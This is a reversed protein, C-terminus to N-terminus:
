RMCYMWVATEGGEVEGLKSVGGRGVPDVM